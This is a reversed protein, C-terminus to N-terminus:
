NSAALKEESLVIEVRRYSSDRMAGHDPQKWLRDSDSAYPMHTIPVDVLDIKDSNLATFIRNPERLTVKDLPFYKLYREFTPRILAKEFVCGFGMLKDPKNTYQEQYDKGMNCVIRGPHWAAIIAKPNSVLVDDDQVYILDHVAFGAAVYLGFPKFDITSKSNDWVKIEDLDELTKFIQGIGDPINGRTVILATVDSLTM